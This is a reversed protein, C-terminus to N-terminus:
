ARWRCAPAHRENQGANGVSANWPQGVPRADPVEGTANDLPQSGSLQPVAEVQVVSGAHRRLLRRDIGHGGQESTQDVAQLHHVGIRLLSGPDQGLTQGVKLDFDRWRAGGLVLKQVFGAPMSLARREASFGAQLNVLLPFEKM